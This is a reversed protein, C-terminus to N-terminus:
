QSSEEAEKLTKFVDDEMIYHDDDYVNIFNKLMYSVIIYNEDTIGFNIFSVEDKELSGDNPDLYYIEEGINFRHEVTTKNM